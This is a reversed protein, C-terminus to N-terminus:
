LDEPIVPVVGDATQEPQTQEIPMIPLPLDSANQKVQKAALNGLMISTAFFVVALGCTLKFLFSGSGSSGFLTQSAGSGFAAGIDAGKGHQILVLVILFVAVVVHVIILISEM